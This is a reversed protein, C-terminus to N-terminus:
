DFFGAVKYTAWGHTKTGQRNALVYELIQADLESVRKHHILQQIRRTSLKYQKESPGGPESKARLTESLNQNQYKSLPVSSSRDM